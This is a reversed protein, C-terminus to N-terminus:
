NMHRRFVKRTRCKLCESTGGAVEQKELSELYKAGPVLDVIRVASVFETFKCVRYGWAFLM